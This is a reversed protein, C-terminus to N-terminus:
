SRKVIRVACRCVRWVCRWLVVSDEVRSSSRRNWLFPSDLNEPIRKLPSSTRARRHVSTVPPNSEQARFRMPSTSTSRRKPTQSEDETGCCKGFAHDAGCPCVRNRLSIKDRIQHIISAALKNDTDQSYRRVHTQSPQFYQTKLEHMPVGNLAMREFFSMRRQVLGPSWPEEDPLRTDYRNGLLIRIQVCQYMLLPIFTETEAAETANDVIVVTPGFNLYLDEHGADHCSVIVIDAQAIVRYLLKKYLLYFRAKDAEPSIESITSLMDM